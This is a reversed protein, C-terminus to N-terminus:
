WYKINVVKSNSDFYYLGKNFAKDVRYKEFGTMQTWKKDRLDFRHKSNGGYLFVKNFILFVPIENYNLLPDNYTDFLYNSGEYFNYKLVTDKQFCYSYKTGNYVDYTFYCVNSKSTNFIGHNVICIAKNGNHLLRLTDGNFLYFNLNHFDDESVPRGKGLYFFGKNRLNLNLDFEFYKIEKKANPSSLTKPNYSILLMGENGVCIINSCNLYSNMSDLKIVKLIKKENIDICFLSKKSKFFLSKGDFSVRADLDEVKSDLSELGVIENLSISSEQSFCLNSSILFAM